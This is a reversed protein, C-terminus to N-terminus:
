GTVVLGDESVSGMGAVEMPTLREEIYAARIFAARDAMAVWRWCEIIQSLFELLPAIFLPDLPGHLFGLQRREFEALPGALLPNVRFQEVLVGRQLRVRVPQKEVDFPQAVIWLEFGGHTHHNGVRHLLSSGAPCSLV